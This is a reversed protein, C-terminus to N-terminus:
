LKRHDQMFFYKMCFLYVYCSVKEVIILDGVQINSSKVKVTGAFSLYWHMLVPDTPAPPHEDGGERGSPPEPSFCTVNRHCSHTLAARYLGELGVPWVTTRSRHFPSVAERKVAGSRLGPQLFGSTLGQHYSRFFGKFKQTKKVCNLGPTQFYKQCWASLLALVPFDGDTSEEERPPQFNLVWSELWPRPDM